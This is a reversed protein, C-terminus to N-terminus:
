YYTTYKSLKEHFKTFRVKNKQIQIIDKFLKNISWILIITPLLVQICVPIQLFFTSIM